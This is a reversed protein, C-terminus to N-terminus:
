KKGTKAYDNNMEIIVDQTIDVGGSAALIQRQDTFRPIDSGRIPHENGNNDQLREPPVLARDDRMVIDWNDRAAIRQVADIIKLYISRLGAGEQEDLLQQLVSQLARGQARLVLSQGLLARYEPSEKQNEKLKLDDDIKKLKDQVDDLDKKSNAVMTKLRETVDKAENLEKMLKGLDIIAVRTPGTNRQVATPQARLGAAALVGLFAFACIMASRRLASSRLATTM